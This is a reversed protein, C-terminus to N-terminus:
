HLGITAKVETINLHIQTVLLGTEGLGDGIGRVVEEASGGFAFEALCRKDVAGLPNVHHPAAMVTTSLGATETGDWNFVCLM